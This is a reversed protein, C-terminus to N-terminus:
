EGFEWGDKLGTITIHYVDPWHIDEDQNKTVFKGHAWIELVKYEFPKLYKPEEILDKVANDFNLLPKYKYLHDDDMDSALNNYVRTPSKLLFDTGAFLRMDVIQKKPIPEFVWKEIKGTFEVGNDLDQAIFKEKGIFLPKTKIHFGSAYRALCVEGVPPLEGKEHWNCDSM